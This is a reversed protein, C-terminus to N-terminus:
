RSWEEEGERERRKGKGERGRGEKGKGERGKGERGKGERGKGERGKGEGGKGERGRGEKGKGEMRREWWGGWRVGRGTVGVGLRKGANTRGNARQREAQAVAPVHNLEVERVESAPRIGRPVLLRSPHLYSLECATMRM